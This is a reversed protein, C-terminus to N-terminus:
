YYITRVGASKGRGQIAFRLKRIGSGGSIIDGSVPNEVLLNQMSRYEEDSLLETVLKTFVKTEIFEM